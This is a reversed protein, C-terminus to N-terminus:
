ALLPICRVCVITQRARAPMDASDRPSPAPFGNRSFVLPFNGTRTIIRELVLLAEPSAKFADCAFLLHEASEQEIWMLFRPRSHQRDPLHWATQRAWRM